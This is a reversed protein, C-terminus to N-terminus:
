RGVICCLYGDSACILFLRSLRSLILLCLLTPTLDLVTLHYRLALMDIIVIISRTHALVAIVRLTTVLHGGLARMTIALQVRAADALRAVEAVVM